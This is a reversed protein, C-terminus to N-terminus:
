SIDLAVKLPKPVTQGQIKHETIGHAVKLPLQIVKSSISGIASKKSLSYKFSVKEIVTGKPYKVTYQPNKIRSQKGVNVRKFEIIFKAVSGDETKIVDIITGLQGNTLGDSTDINHILIVKCHVKVRLNDMFSSTGVTGEKKCIRPKYNKQTPHYHTSKIIIDNNPLNDLYTTNIRSCIKKTCVIYLSVEDLDPHGYPRIRERLKVIDDKTQSGERVRNLMEAYEKDKGQRHNIELNLVNFKHWRSDLEFTLYFSSNQPRDFIFKGCVPQLQLIDGFFFISIGGFPVGTRQTIEQLRLDLQYLMDAKVMSIEDIIIMKLNKMINRRADRTRDSLSYHKNEFSFGFASHLTMGDILSAAAGTFATKIVYPCNLDDGPKQLIYQMWEALSEIVYTKGAGAGGHVMVYPPEPM